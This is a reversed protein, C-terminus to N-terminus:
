GGGVYDVHWWEGPGHIKGWGFQSGISDVISRMEPTAVDVATGLEHSSTGPPDAPAGTGDLFAQYLQAQQDYTRYASLPGGPYLDAGYYSLSDQRMADWQSAADSRLYVTGCPCYIPSLGPTSAASSAATSATAAPITLTQGKYVFDTAGIGNASALADPTIGNAAAIGTLTEGATVTHSGASTSTSSSTTTGTSAPIALTQGIYVFDTPSIGNAAALADATVGNAAAIGSLTEGAVVTHGGTSTSSTATSATPAETSSPVQITQGIVVMTDPSIGNFAAISATSLSNAAAIGSLTEGPQVTHAVAAVARPAGLALAAAVGLLTGASARGRNRM